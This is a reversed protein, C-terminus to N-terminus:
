IEAQEFSIEAASLAPESAATLERYIKMQGSYLTLNLVMRVLIYLQQWLVLLLVVVVNAADLRDALLNYLLLAMLGIVFIVVAFAVAPLFHGLLFRLSQWLSRRMKHEGTLVAQIRAYDFALGYLFLGLYFLGRKIWGGWHTIYQYPDSGWFLRVVATELYQLCFLVAIVPLCWLVLRCFRGFYNAAGSWFIEPQYKEDGALITLAGGSLFLGFLWYGVPVLFLLPLPNGKQNIFEFVFDMDLRGGLVSGMQSNGVYSALASRMPLMLLLGFFLNALYFVLLLRKNAWIQTFGSRLSKLVM